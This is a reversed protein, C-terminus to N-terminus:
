WVAHLYQPRPARQGFPAMVPLPMVEEFILYRIKTCSRTMNLYSALDYMCRTAKTFSHIVLDIAGGLQIWSLGQINSAGPYVGCVM